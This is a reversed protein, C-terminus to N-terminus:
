VNLVTSKLNTLAKVYAPKRLDLRCLRMLATYTQRKKDEALQPHLIMAAWKTIM